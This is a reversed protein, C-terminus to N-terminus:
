ETMASSLLPPSLSLQMSPITCTCELLLQKVRHKILARQKKSLEQIEKPSTPAWEIFSLLPSYNRRLPAHIYKEVAMMRKWKQPLPYHLKNFPGV